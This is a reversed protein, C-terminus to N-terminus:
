RGFDLSLHQLHLSQNSIAKALDGLTKDTLQLCSFYFNIKLIASIYLINIEKIYNLEMMFVEKWQKDIQYCKVVSWLLPNLWVKEKEAYDEFLERKCLRLLNENGKKWQIDLPFFLRVRKKKWQLVCKHRSGIFQQHIVRSQRGSFTRVHSQIHKMWLITFSLVYMM